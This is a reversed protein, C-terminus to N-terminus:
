VDSPEPAESAGSTVSDDYDANQTLMDPDGPVGQPMEGHDQAAAQAAVAAAAANPNGAYPNQAQAGAARARAMAAQGAAIGAQMRAAGRSAVAGMVPATPDTAVVQAVHATEDPTPIAIPPPTVPAIAAASAVASAQQRINAASAIAGKNQLYDAVKLMGDPKTSLLAQKALAGDKAKEEPPLESYNARDRLMKAEAKLGEKDFGDAAKRYQDPTLSANDLLRQLIYNTTPTGKQKTRAAQGAKYWGLGMLGVLPLIVPLM